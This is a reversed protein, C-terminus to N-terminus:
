RRLSRSLHPLGARVALRIIDEFRMGTEKSLDEAEKLSSEFFRIQKPRSLTRQDEKRHTDVPM